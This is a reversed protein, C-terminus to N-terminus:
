YYSAKKGVEPTKKQVFNDFRQTFEQIQHENFSPKTMLVQKEIVEVTVEEIEKHALKIQLDNLMGQVDAGTFHEMLGAARSFDGFIGMKGALVKLIDGRESVDPFGCFVHFDLRGPRLLAQDILEPRSSIAVIFVNERSEVGDLECLFQNMIRDTSASIGSGRKPVIAEFEDFVIISPRLRKAREFVERVSQESAGIYKNLLEPGKVSIMTMECIAPIASAILTKGCGPPGFLLMGSRLKMPYNEYLVRYKVPFTFSELIQAKIGFMGGIDEWKVMPETKKVEIASPVFSKVQSILDFDLKSNIRLTSGSCFQFIDILTFSKMYPLLQSTDQGPLQKNLIIQLDQPKISPIKLVSNFYSSTSLLPNLLSKSTCSVIVRLTKTFKTHDLLSLLLLSHQNSILKAEEGQNDEIKGCVGELDEIFVVSPLSQKAKDFTEGLKKEFEKKSFTRCPLVIPAVLDLEINEGILKFFSSKGVGPSGEVLVSFAKKLTRKVDEAAEVFSPLRILKQESESKEANGECKVVKKDTLVVFGVWEQQNVQTKARVKVIKGKLSVQMGDFLVIKGTLNILFDLDEENCSLSFEGPATKVEGSFKNLFCLVNPQYTLVQVVKYKYFKELLTSYIHNEAYEGNVCCGIVLSSNLGCALLSGEPFENTGLCLGGPAARLMKGAFRQPRDKPRVMIESNVQLLGWEGELNLVRIWICCNHVWLPLVIGKQVVRIQSLFNLEIFGANQSLIEWSDEDVAEIEVKSCLKVPMHEISVESGDTISLSSGLMSPIEYSSGLTCYFFFDKNPLSLKIISSTPNYPLRILCDKYNGHKIKIM